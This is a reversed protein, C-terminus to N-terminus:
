LFFYKCFKASELKRRYHQWMRGTWGFRATMLCQEGSTSTVGAEKKPSRLSIFHASLYPCFLHNRGRANISATRAVGLVYSTRWNISQKSSLHYSAKVFYLDDISATGTVGLAYHEEEVKHKEQVVWEAEAVGPCDADHLIQEVLNFSYRTRRPLRGSFAGRTSFTM